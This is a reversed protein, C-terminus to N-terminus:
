TEQVEDQDLSAWRRGANIAQRVQRPQVAACDKSCSWHVSQTLRTDPALHIRWHNPRGTILPGDPLQALAAALVLGATASLFPLAADASEEHELPPAPATSCKFLPECPDPFRCAICQDYTPLHRHLEATYERSTSAHLLIPETRQGIAHRVGRGNALNLILDPRAPQTDMWEHYWGVYHEAGCLAAALKAKYGGVTAAPWGTDAATYGMSRNTNHLEVRDRDVWTWNGVIGVVSLWYALGAGVAGAGIVVVNGVDLPCSRNPGESERLDWLSLRIPALRQDHVHWYTAASGLCAALMAGWITCDQDTLDVPQRDLIALWGRAGVHWTCAATGTGIAISPADAVAPGLDIHPNIAYAVAAAADALSTGDPLTVPPIHLDLHRHVRALLDVLALLCTQGARSAAADAGVYVAIPTGLRDAHGGLQITRRDRQRYFEEALSV